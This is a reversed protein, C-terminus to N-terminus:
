RLVKSDFSPGPEALNRALEESARNRFATLIGPDMPAPAFLVLWLTRTSETVCTRLSDSTPNGFAGKSDSLVPKGELGVVEKRIGPYCEGPTGRRLLVPGAIRDADYLGMPLLFELSLLTCLDVANSINPLPKGQLIRRLLAESSPRTRTPDVGFSRYLDRAPALGEIESPGRGRYRELLALRLQEIEELLSTSSPGIRVPRATVVALRLLGAVEAAISLDLGDAM